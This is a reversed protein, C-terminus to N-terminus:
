EEEASARLLRDHIAAWAPEDPPLVVIIRDWGQRDLEHLDAYLKMAAEAPDLVIGYRAVKLGATEYLNVLFDAEASDQACELATKPAYHRLQLGPSLAPSNGPSDLNSMVIDGIISQLQVLSVLGPRLIRPPSSTLDLVTSELGGSCPGGDLIADIRGELDELVHEATTPSLHGSRNASPAAIPGGFTRILELAISNAPVRIAVTSGSATTMDPVSSHKNFILTLPGPWFQAALQEAIDSWNVVLSRAMAIDAVHVILPNTSPRGKATFIGQVADANLAAAGLGYVTETPFAVLQGLQLMTAAQAILDPNPHNPDLMWRETKPM